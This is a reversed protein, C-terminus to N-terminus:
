CSPPSCICAMAPLPRGRPAAAAATALDLASRLRTRDPQEIEMFGALSDVNLPLDVASPAYAENVATTAPDDAKFQGETTRARKRPTAM